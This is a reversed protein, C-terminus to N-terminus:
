GFPLVELTITRSGKKYTLKTSSISLVKGGDLRSGAGVKVYRGNPMRVLARRASSSGYIGILSVKRLNIANKITAQKAVSTRTPIKPVVTQRPSAAAVVVSGDSADGRELARAVIKGFGNPRHRPGISTDIALKTPSVLAATSPNGAESNDAQLAATIAAAQAVARPTTPRYRPRLAALEVRTRGGLQLRENGEILGEPRARPRITPQGPTTADATDAAADTEVDTAPADGARPAPVLPPRGAFVIAGGPTLAGEPTAQVFGNGDLAFTTGLPPPAITNIDQAVSTTQVPAPLAIADQAGSLPDISAIYLDDLRATEPDPMPEPARQWIGTAAYRARAAEPTLPDSGTTSPTDDAPPPAVEPEGYLDGIAAEDLDSETQTSIAAEFPDQESSSFWATVDGLFFRSWVAVVAMLLLLGLVLYLGLFKPKGGVTQSQRAGFVTLTEAERARRSPPTREGSTQSPPPPAIATTVSDSKVGRQTSDLAKSSLGAHAPLAAHHDSPRDRRQGGIKKAAKRGLAGAVDAAKELGAAGKRAATKLSAKSGAKRAKLAPDDGFAVPATVPVHVPTPKPEAAPSEPQTDTSTEDTRDLGFSIRPTVSVEDVSADASAPDDSTVDAAPQVSENDAASIDARRSSFAPLEPEDVAAELPPPPPPVIGSVQDPLDQDPAIDAPASPQALDPATAQPAPEPVEAARSPPKPKANPVPAAPPPTPDDLTLPFPALDPRKPKTEEVPPSPPEVVQAPIIPPEGAPLGLVDPVPEADREVVAGDAIPGFFAEGVFSGSPRAAFSVPNLKHELAFAQAEDLTERAVVAVHVMGDEAPDAQWDFVLDDTAYPTLGELGERIRAERTVEDPGPATMSTFLLQSPPVILKCSFGGSELDAAKRRLLDLGSSLQPHELSVQGVLAWGGKGRHILGIGDHSLDLAFNPKM